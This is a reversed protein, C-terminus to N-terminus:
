ENEEIYKELSERTAKALTIGKANTINDLKEKMQKPIRIYLYTDLEKTKAKRTYTIGDKTTITQTRTM